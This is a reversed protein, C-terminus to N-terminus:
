IVFVAATREVGGEVRRLGIEDPAQRDRSRQMVFAHPAVAEVAQRVFEDGARELPPRRLHGASLDHGGM